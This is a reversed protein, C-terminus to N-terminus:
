CPWRTITNQLASELMPRQLLFCSTVTVLLDSLWRKKKKKLCGLNVQWKDELCLEKIAGHLLTIRLHM